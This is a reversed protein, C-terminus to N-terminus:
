SGRLRRRLDSPSEGYADKYCKSFYAPTTFGVEYAIESVTKDTTTLLKRALKVRVDRIIEVPTFNTLAKIKRTFQSQGLGMKGALEDVSLESRSIERHLLELFRSYFDSDITGDAVTAVARAAPKGTEKEPVSTQNNTYIDKIRRRNELLNRCRAMLVDGNFPKSLYADAGSNYARARDEDMSCATLLMVPIHSTSIETKLLSCCQLGDMVPMMVDCIVLDPTYKSALKLGQQGDVATLVNYKDSLLGRIMALMDNNDDIVLVLPKTNDIVVDEVVPVPPLEGAIESKSIGRRTTAASEAVHVVPLIVTFRTGLGPESEVNISGGHLEVFAKTLALGIGSGDPNNAGTHFFREFVQGIDEKSIGRGTDEVYFVLSEGELKCSLHIKGGRPTFKIANSMLNFFVREIKEIDIALTTTNDEPLDLTFRIDRQQIAEEFSSAWDSMLRSMDVENLKLSLKDNEYKRFDLLQDILRRLIAVNKRCINILSKDAPNLYNIGAIRNVPEEILTLPTRLDHSVNTYFALKSQTAEDLRRYLEEQKDKEQRLQENKEELDRRHMLSNRYYKIIIVLVSLLLLLIVVGAWQLTHEMAQRSMSEDLLEKLKGIKGTEETLMDHQQLLIDANRLDVASVPPLKEERVFTGGNLIAKATRILKYGYTPYLFTATLISDTVAPIGVRTSGDIGLYKINNYGLDRAKAAASIAMVDSHAYILDVDPYIRLLSDVRAAATDPNWNGNVSAVINMEPYDVLGNVFGSHRSLTPTMGPSGKIEIINAGQPFLSLAYAAAERGIAENDVELHATYSPGNIRRDFTVVPIGRDYAEKVIATVSDADTPNVIILDFNNDIFYRIDEIQRSSLDDASRIEVKIDDDFMVERVIEDNTQWRWADSSCQAVGIKYDKGHKGCAASVLVM